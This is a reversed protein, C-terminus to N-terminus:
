RTRRRGAGGAPRAARNHGLRQRDRGRTVAGALSAEHQRRAELGRREIGGAHGAPEAEIVDGDGHRGALELRVDRGPAAEAKALEVAFLHMAGVLDAFHQQCRAIM